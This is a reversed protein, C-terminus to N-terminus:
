RRAAWSARGLQESVFVFSRRVANMGDGALAALGASRYGKRGPRAAFCSPVHNVDNMFTISNVGGALSLTNDGNGLSINSVSVDNQLTLVDNVVPGTPGFDQGAINEVGIVSLSNVGSVLNLNDNGDGLDVVLGNAASTMNVFENASTGTLYEVGSLNLTFGTGFANPNLIVTDNAGAGLSLQHNFINSGVRVYDDGNTGIVPATNGNLIATSIDTPSGATGSSLLVIGDNFQLVEVNTLVDTADRNTGQSDIVLIKGASPTDFNITYQSQNGTFTVVDTGAGGDITDAGGQGVITDNGGGANITDNGGNGFFLEDASSGTLSDASNSGQVSNVGTFTDTGISTGTATSPSQILM